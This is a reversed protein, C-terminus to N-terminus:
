PCNPSRQSAFRAPLVRPSPLLPPSAHLARLIRLAFSKPSSPPNDYWQHLWDYRTTHCTATYTAAINTFYTCVRQPQNRKSHGQRVLGIQFFDSKTTGLVFTADGTGGPCTTALQATTTASPLADYVDKATSQASRPPSRPPALIPYLSSPAPPRLWSPAVRLTLWSVPRAYM